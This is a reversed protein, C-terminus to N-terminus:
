KNFQKPDTDLRKQRSLDLAILRYHNEIYDYDLLCGTTYNEGKGTILRKIKRYRKIGSHIIEDFFTKGNILKIIKSLVKQYIFNQANFRNKRM